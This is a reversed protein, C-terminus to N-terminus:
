PGPSPKRDHTTNCCHRHQCSSLLMTAKIRLRVFTFMLSPLVARSSRLFRKKFTPSDPLHQQYQDIGTAAIRSEFAVVTEHHKYLPVAFVLAIAIVLLGTAMHSMGFRTRPADDM